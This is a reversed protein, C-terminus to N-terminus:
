KAPRHTRPSHRLVHPKSAARHQPLPILVKLAGPRSRYLLPSTTTVLEGDLAIKVDSSDVEIRVESCLHRVVLASRELRGFLAAGLLRVRALPQDGRLIRVDLVHQNLTDRAALDFLDNGYHGNGVFVLWARYTTGDLGITFRHGRVLEAIDALAQAMRKPIGRAQYAERRAVLDSYLGIASNNIFCRGNVEGVDVAEVRGQVAQAAAALDTVGLQHAFHNRTGAPVALLPVLGELLPEAGGRITGDGGAVGVFDAGRAAAQRVADALGVPPAEEVRHPHFHTRLEATTPHHRGSRPNLFVVGSVAFLM